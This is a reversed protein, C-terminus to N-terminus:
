GLETKIYLSVLLDMEIMDKLYFERMRSHRVLSILVRWVELLTKLYVMKLYAFHIKKIIILSLIALARFVTDNSSEINNLLYEANLISDKITYIGKSAGSFPIINIRCDKISLDIM